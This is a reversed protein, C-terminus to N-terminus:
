KCSGDNKMATPLASYQRVGVVDTRGTRRTYLEMSPFYCFASGNSYYIGVGVVFLGESIVTPPAPAPAPTPAPRPATPPAPTPANPAKCAGDNKLGSPISSFNPLGNADTRGTLQTYVEMSPFWCYSGGNSYYLDNGIRFLGAFSNGPPRPAPTTAPPPNGPLIYPNLSGSPLMIVPKRHPLAFQKVLKGSEVKYVTPDDETRYYTDPMLGKRLNSYAITMQLLWDETEEGYYDTILEASAIRRKGPEIATEEAWDNWSPLIINKPKNKIAHLWQQAYNKGREKFVPPAVRNLHTTNHGAQVPMTESSVIQPYHVAWGWLGENAYPQLLPNDSKTLGASYRVTFRPDKWYRKIEDKPHPDELNNYVIFLPKYSNTTPDYWKLYNPKQAFENWLNDAEKAMNVVREEATWQANWLPFGGAIAVPIDHPLNAFVKRANNVIRGGDNYWGNTHDLLLYDIGAQKLYPYQRTIIDGSDYYGLTPEYRTWDAWHDPDSSGKKYFYISYWAGITTDRPILPNSMCIWGKSPDCEEKITSLSAGNNAAITSVSLLSSNSTSTADAYEFNQFALVLLGSVILGTSSKLLKKKNNIM